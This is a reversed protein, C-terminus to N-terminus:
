SKGGRTVRNILIVPAATLAIVIASTVLSERYGGSITIVIPPGVLAALDFMATYISAALGRRYEPVGLLSIVQLSPFLLGLGLGALVAAILAIQGNPEIAVITYGVISAALGALAGLPPNFNQKLSIALRSALNSFAMITFFAATESSPLGEIEHLSPLFYSLSQYGVVYTFLTVSALIFPKTLVERFGFGGGSVAVAEQKYLSSMTAAAISALTAALFLPQWSWRVLVFGLIAPGLASGLGWMTARWVIVRSARAGTVSASYLSAPIFLAVSVGQVLRGVYVLALSGSTSYLTLALANLLSGTVMLTRAYGKDNLYGVIFRLAIATLAYSTALLSVETESAGLAVAYRPLYPAIGLLSIVYLLTSINLIWDNLTLRNDRSM